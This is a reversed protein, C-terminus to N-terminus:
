RNARYSEVIETLQRVTQDIAASARYEVAMKLAVIEAAIAKPDGLRFLVAMRIIETAGAAPALTRAIQMAQAMTLTAHKLQQLRRM